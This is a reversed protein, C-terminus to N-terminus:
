CIEYTDISVPVLLKGYYSDVSFIQSLGRDDITVLRSSDQRMPYVQYIKDKTFVPMSLIRYTETAKRRM